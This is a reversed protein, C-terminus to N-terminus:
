GLPRSPYMAPLDLHPWDMALDYLMEETSFYAQYYWDEYFDERCDHKDYIHTEMAISLVEYVRELQYALAQIVMECSQVSQRPITAIRGSQCIDRADGRKEGPVDRWYLFETQQANDESKM